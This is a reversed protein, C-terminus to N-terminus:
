VNVRISNEGSLFNVNKELRGDKQFDLKGGFFKQILLLPLNSVLTTTQYNFAM